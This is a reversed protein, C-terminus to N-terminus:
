STAEPLKNAQTVANADALTLNKIPTVKGDFSTTFTNEASQTFFVYLLLFILLANLITFFRLYNACNRFHIEYYTKQNRHRALAPIGYEQALKANEQALNTRM